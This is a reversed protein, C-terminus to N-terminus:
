TRGKEEAAVQHRDGFLRIGAAFLVAACLIFIYDGPYPKEGAAAFGYVLRATEGALAFFSLVALFMAAAPYRNNMRDAQRRSLPEQMKVFSAACDSLLFLPLACFAYPLAAQLTHM